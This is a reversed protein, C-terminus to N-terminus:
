ISFGAASGGLRRLITLYHEAPLGFQEGLVRARAELVRWAIKRPGGKLALAITNVRDAAPMLVVQHGFAQAIREAYIDIRDDDSMFNQVMIGPDTLAAHAQAYFRDTCLAKVQRGDDFADLLLIDASEPHSAVWSAGDDLVTAFRPGDPPLDFYRRAAGVVEPNVEIVTVKCRSYNRHLFRAMSGGGLGIMLANGPNPHFLLFAMMARNYHLELHDPSSLRMASQIADGGIHLFRVGGEESVAVATGRGAPWRRSRKSTV